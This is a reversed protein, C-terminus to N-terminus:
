GGGEVNVSKASM